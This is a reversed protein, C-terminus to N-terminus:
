NLAARRIGERIDDLCEPQYLIENGTTIRQELYNRLDVIGENLFFMVCDRNTCHAGNEEDHHDSTLPLGNNVLGMAHGFEHVLTSQEIFVQFVPPLQAGNIPGMFIAIVGSQGISVGLTGPQQEGDQVFSGDIFMVHVTRLGPADRLDRHRESLILLDESTYGEQTPPPLEEMEELTTPARTEITSEETLKDLHARFIEWPIKEELLQGNQVIQVPDVAPAAEPHYDVEILIEQRGIFFFGPRDDEEIEPAGSGNSSCAICTVLFILSRFSQYRIHM